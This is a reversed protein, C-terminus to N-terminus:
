MQLVTMYFPDPADAAHAVAENAQDLDFRTIGYNSLDILGGRILAVMRAPADREYMWQGIINVCNRMIWVYPIELEGGGQMGIGGMLVVRGYPRVAMIAARAQSPAAAPPLIDLVCDIPGAAAQMARRDVEEDGSISVTRLRAGFRDALARLTAENRGTAIVCRAGMALAVAVGASGFNGTAGNILVTEGAQLNAARLGGYPVLFSGLKCWAGAADDAIEGLPIANETPLLMQEAWAGHRFHQQLKQGGPGRASLGQLTIDSFPADDRSRVTPDCYVWDGIMLRTADPGIARVKGIAGPGPVAPLALLYQRTGSLVEAAYPVVPAAVIDVVVEGTGIQPNPLTEITLPSGFTSLLAAKM